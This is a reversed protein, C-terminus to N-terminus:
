FSVLRGPQVDGVVTRHDPELGGGHHAANRDILHGHTGRGDLVYARRALHAAIIFVGGVIHQKGAQDAGRLVVHIAQLHPVVVADVLWVQAQHAVVPKLGDMWRLSARRSAWSSCKEAASSSLMGNLSMTHHSVSHAAPRASSST